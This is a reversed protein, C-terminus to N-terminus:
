IVFGNDCPSSMSKYNYSSGGEVAFSLCIFIHVCDASQQTENPNLVLWYDEHNSWQCQPLWVIAGYMRNGLALLAVRFLIPLYLLQITLEDGGLSAYIRWYIPDANTLSLPNDGVRRWAMIQVLAPNNDLPGKPVFKLSIEILICFKGNPWRFTDDSFHRGNQGPPSSNIYCCM